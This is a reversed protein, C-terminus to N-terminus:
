LTEPNMYHFYTVGRRNENVEEASNCFSLSAIETVSRRPAYTHKTHPVFM